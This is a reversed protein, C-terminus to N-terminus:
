AHRAIETRPLSDHHTTWALQRADRLTAARAICRQDIMLMWPPHGHIRFIVTGGDASAYTGPSTRGVALAPQRGREVDGSTATSSPPSSHRNTGAAEDSRSPTRPSAALAQDVPVDGRRIRRRTHVTTGGWIGVDATDEHALATTLCATRVTCSACTALAIATESRSAPGTFRETPHDRCAAHQRWEHDPPTEPRPRSM